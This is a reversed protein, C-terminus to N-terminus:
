PNCRKCPTYGESIAEERTGWFEKKNKDKIDTISLCDPNHYKNTNTNIIYTARSRKDRKKEETINRSADASRPRDEFPELRLIIRDSSTLMDYASACSMVELAEPNPDRKSNGNSYDIIVGPQINYLYVNFKVGKGHDEVSYAEMQVGSAVLDNGKYVPTVRYMVHASKNNRIYSAVMNEFFLMTNSNLYRTGTFLNEPTANDGGLQYGIVHCRNYLYRDEILDDYRVTHWGSPRVNGIQGRTDTPITESGLCAIGMGTRGLRDLPSFKQYALTVLERKKFEPVNDNLLVFPIGHYAEIKRVDPGRSATYGMCNDSLMFSLFMVCLIIRKLLGANRLTRVVEIYLKNMM